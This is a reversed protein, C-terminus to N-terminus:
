ANKKEEELCPAVIDAACRAFAATVALAQDAADDTIEVSFCPPFYNGFGASKKGLKLKMSGSGFDIETKFTKCDLNELERIIAIKTESSINM